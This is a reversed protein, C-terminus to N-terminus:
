LVEKRRASRQLSRAATHPEPSRREENPNARWDIRPGETRLHGGRNSKAPTPLPNPNGGRRPCSRASELLRGFAPDLINRKGRIRNAVYPLM